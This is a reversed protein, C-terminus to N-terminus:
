KQRPTSSSCCRLSWTTTRADKYIVCPATETGDAADEQRNRLERFVCSAILIYKHELLQDRGDAMEVLYCLDRCALVNFLVHKCYYKNEKLSDM